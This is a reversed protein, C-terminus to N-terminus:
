KKIGLFSIAWIFYLSVNRSRTQKETNIFLPQSQTLINRSSPATAFHYSKQAPPLLLMRKFVDHSTRPHRQTRFYSCQYDPQWLEYCFTSHILWKAKLWKTYYTHFTLSMYDADKMLTNTCMHILVNLDLYVMKTPRLGPEPPLSIKLTPPLVAAPTSLPKTNWHEHRGTAATRQLGQIEWARM